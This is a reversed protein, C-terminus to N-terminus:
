KHKQPLSLPISNYIRKKKKVLPRDAFNEQTPLAAGSFSIRACVDMRFSEMWLRRHMLPLLQDLILMKSHLPAEVLVSARLNRWFVQRGGLWLFRRRRLGCWGLSARTSVSPIGPVDQLSIGSKVSQSDTKKRMVSDASPKSLYDTLAITQIGCVFSYSSTSHDQFM